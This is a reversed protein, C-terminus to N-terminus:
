LLACTVGRTDLGCIEVFSGARGGCRAALLLRLREAADLDRAVCFVSPGSGSIGTALAGLHAAAARVGELGGELGQVLPARYPEAIVDRLAAAALPEDGAHCAHVFAALRRGYALCDARPYAAPLAARAAATSLTTGPYCIVWLWPPAPLAVSAGEAGEADELILRLGGHLSPAINDYHVGGSLRGEQAGMLALLDRPPLPHGNLANLATLCAVVSSASSGLGSGVPLRKHLELRAPRAARGRAALAEAYAARCAYLANHRPDPPLKHAYPGHATLLPDRPDRAEEATLAVATVEDGLAGGGIPALAAGLADFGVSLNASSAPAYAVARTPLAAPPPTM